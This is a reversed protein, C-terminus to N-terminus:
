TGRLSRSGAGIAYGRGRASTTHFTNPAGARGARIGRAIDRREALQRRAVARAYGGPSGVPNAAMVGRLRRAEGAPFLKIVM